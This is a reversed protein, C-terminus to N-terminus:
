KVVKCREVDYATATHNYNNTNPQNLKKVRDILFPILGIGLWELGVSLWEFLM